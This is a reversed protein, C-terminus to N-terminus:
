GKPPPLADADDAASNCCYGIDVDHSSNVRSSVNDVDILTATLRLSIRSLDAALNCQLFNRYHTSSTM